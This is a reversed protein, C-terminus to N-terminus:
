ASLAPIMKELRQEETLVINVFRERDEESITPFDRLLEAASRIAALSTRFAIEKDLVNAEKEDTVSFNTLDQAINDRPM